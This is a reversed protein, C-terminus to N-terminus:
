HKSPEQCQLFRGGRRFHGDFLVGEDFRNV